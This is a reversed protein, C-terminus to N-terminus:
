RKKFLLPVLVTLFIAIELCIGAVLWWTVDYHSSIHAIAGSYSTGLLIGIGFCFLGLAFVIDKKGTSARERAALTGLIARGGITGARIFSSVIIVYLSSLFVDLLLSAIDLLTCILYITVPSFRNDCLLGVLIRGSVSGVATSLTLLLIEEVALGKELAHPIILNHWGCYGFSVLIMALFFFNFAPDIYFDSARLSAWLTTFFGNSLESNDERLDTSSESHSMLPYSERHSIHNPDSDSDTDDETRYGGRYRTTSSGTPIDYSHRESVEEDESSCRDKGTGKSTTGYRVALACPIINAMLAGVILIAGRWGYCQHLYETLVPLAVTGVGSGSMSISYILNFHEGALDNLAISASTLLFCNGLGSVSLFIGISAKNTAFSTLMVGISVMCSGGILLVRRLPRQRYIVAVLLAPIHAFVNFLVLAIRLEPDTSPTGIIHRSIDKLYLGLAKSTGMGAGAVLFLLLAVPFHPSGFVECCGGMKYRIFPSYTDLCQRLLCLSKELDKTAPNLPCINM